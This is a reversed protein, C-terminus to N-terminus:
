RDFRRQEAFHSERAFPTPDTRPTTTAEVETRVMGSGRFGKVRPQNSFRTASILDPTECRKDQDADLV